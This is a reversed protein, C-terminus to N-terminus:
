FCPTNSLRLYTNQRKNSSDFACLSNSIDAPGRIAEHHHTVPGSYRLDSIVAQKYLQAVSSVKYVNSVQSVGAILRLVREFGPKGSLM